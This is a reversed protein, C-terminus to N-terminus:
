DTKLWAVRDFGGEGVVKNVCREKDGLAPSDIYILRESVDRGDATRFEKVAFFRLTNARLGCEMEAKSLLYEARDDLSSCGVLTLLLALSTLWPISDKLGGTIWM